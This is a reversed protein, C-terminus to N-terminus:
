YSHRPYHGRNRARRRRPDNAPGRVKARFGATKRDVTDRRTVIWLSTSLVGSCGSSRAFASSEWFFYSGTMKGRFCCPRRAVVPCRSSRSSPRTTPVRRHCGDLVGSLRLHALPPVGFFFSGTLTGCRRSVRAVPCDSPLVGHNGDPGQYLWRPISCVVPSHAPLRLRRLFFRATPTAAFPLSRSRGSPLGSLCLGAQGKSSEWHCRDPVGRVVPSTRLLPRRLRSGLWRDVFRTWSWSGFVPRGPSVFGEATQLLWCRHCGDLFQRVALSHALLFGCFVRFRSTKGRFSLVSDVLLSGSLTSFGRM